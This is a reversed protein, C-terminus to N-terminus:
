DQLVGQLYIDWLLFLAPVGGIFVFRFVLFM